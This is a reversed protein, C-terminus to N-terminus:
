KLNSMENIKKKEIYLNIHNIKIINEIRKKKKVIFKFILFNDMMGLEHPLANVTVFLYSM